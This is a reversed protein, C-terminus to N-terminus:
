GESYFMCPCAGEGSLSCHDWFQLDKRGENHNLSLTSKSANCQLVASVVVRINMAADEKAIGRIQQELCLRLVRFYQQILVIWYFRGRIGGM